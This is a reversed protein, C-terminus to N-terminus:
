SEYIINPTINHYFFYQYDIPLITNYHEKLFQWKKEYRKKLMIKFVDNIQTPTFLNQIEQLDIVADFHYILERKTFLCLQKEPETYYNLQSDRNKELKGNEMVYIGYHDPILKIANILHKEDTVLYNYEFVKEYDGAQKSLKTLNDIHSKIEYSRTEGNVTLFDIRSRNVRMEFSAIVNKEIFMAVLKAKLGAESNYNNTLIYNILQHMQFKSLNNLENNPLLSSLIAKLQNNYDLINYSRAFASVDIEKLKNIHTQFIEM